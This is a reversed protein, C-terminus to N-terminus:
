GAPTPSGELISRVAPYDAKGNPLRPLQGVFAVRRPIKYGALKKRAEDRLANEDITGGARIEVVAAVVQGFREDPIGVVISGEVGELAGLVQEVEEAHVKEGGTNITSTGRGILSVTGDPEIRGYDGPVAYSSGNRHFFVRASREPDKYYGDCNTPGALLGTEGPPLLQM